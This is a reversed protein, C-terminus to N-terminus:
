ELNKQRHWNQPQVTSEAASTRHQRASDREEIASGSQISQITTEGGSLMTELLSTLTQIRNTSKSLAATLEGLKTREATLDARLHDNERRYDANEAAIGALRIKSRQLDDDCKELKCAIEQVRRDATEREKKVAVKYTEAANLADATRRTQDSLQQTITAVKSRLGATDTVFRQIRVEANSRASAETDARVRAEVLSAELDALKAQVTARDSTLQAVQGDLRLARQEADAAVTQAADARRCAADRQEEALRAVRSAAIVESDAAALASAAHAEADEARKTLLAERQSAIGDVRISVTSLIEKILRAILDHDSQTLEPQPLTEAQEAALQRILKNLTTMSGRGLWQRVSRHTVARGDARLAEIATAVAAVTVPGEAFASEAATAHDQALVKETLPTHDM